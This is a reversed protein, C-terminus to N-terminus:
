EEMAADNYEVKDEFFFAALDPFQSLTFSVQHDRTGDLNHLTGNLGVPVGDVEFPLSVAANYTGRRRILQFNVPTSRIVTGSNADTFKLSGQEIIFNHFPLSPVRMAERKAPASADAAPEASAFFALLEPLQMREAAGEIGFEMVGQENRTMAMKPARLIVKHLLRRSPLFGFLDITAYLDPLKAFTTGERKAFAMDRIHLKGLLSLESWDVSVAGITIVYPADPTNVASLIWPKAFALSREGNHLWVGLALMCLLAAIAVWKFMKAFVLLSKVM